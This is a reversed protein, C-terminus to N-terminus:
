WRESVSTSSLPFHLRCDSCDLPRLTCWPTVGLGWLALSVPLLVDWPQFFLRRQRRDDDIDAEQPPASILDQAM